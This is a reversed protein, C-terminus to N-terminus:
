QQFKFFLIEDVKKIKIYDLVTQFGEDTKEDVTFDVGSIVNNTYGTTQCFVGKPTVVTVGLDLPDIPEVIFEAEIENPSVNYEQAIVCRLNDIEDLTEISADVCGIVENKLKFIVKKM